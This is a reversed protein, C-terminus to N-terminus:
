AQEETSALMQEVSIQARSLNQYGVGGVFYKDDRKIIQQGHYEIIKQVESPSALDENADPAAEPVANPAESVLPVVAQPAEGSVRDAFSQPQSSGSRLAQRSVELQDRSLKLMQQTYEATDVGARWNQVMGIMVFGAAMIGLGPLVGVMYTTIGASGYGFERQAQSSVMAMVVAVIGGLAVTAWAGFELFSYIRRAVDYSRM